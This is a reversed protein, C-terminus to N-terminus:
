VFREWNSAEWALAAERSSSHFLVGGNADPLRVQWEQAPESFEVTSARRVTLHGLSQLPILDTYLCRATGDSDFLITATV